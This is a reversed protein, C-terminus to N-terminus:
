KQAGWNKLEDPVISDKLQQIQDDTLIMPDDSFHSAGKSTKLVCSGGGIGFLIRDKPALVYNMGRWHDEDGFGFFPFSQRPYKVKWSAIGDCSAQSLRISCRFIYESKWEIQWDYIIAVHSAEDKATLYEADKIAKIQEELEKVTPM